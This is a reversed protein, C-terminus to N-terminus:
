DSYDFSFQETNGTQKPNIRKKSSIINLLKKLLPIFPEDPNLGIEIFTDKLARLEKTDIRCNGYKKEHKSLNTYYNHYFYYFSRKKNGTKEQVVDAIQNWNEEKINENKIESYLIINKLETIPFNKINLERDFERSLKYLDFIVQIGYQSVFDNLKNTLIERDVENLQLM